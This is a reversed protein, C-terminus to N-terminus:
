LILSFMLTKLHLCRVLEAGVLWLKMVIMLIGFEDCIKRVGPLYGKPPIIVGNSGTITEMVIAAINDPNEYIIQERLKTLYYKTAAEESEFEVAERYVYPTM